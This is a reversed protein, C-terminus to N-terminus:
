YSGCRIQERISLGSNQYLENLLSIQKATHALYTLTERQTNINIQLLKVKPILKNQYSTAAMKAQLKALNMKEKLIRKQGESQRLEQYVNWIDKVLSKKYSTLGIRAERVRSLAKRQDHYSFHGDYLPMLFAGGFSWNMEDTDPSGDKIYELSGFILAKPSLPDQKEVLSKATEALHVASNLKKIQLNNHRIHGLYKEIPEPPFHHPLQICTKGIQNTSLSQLGTLIALGKLLEDLSDREKQLELEAELHAIKAEMVKPETVEGNRYKQTILNYSQSTATLINQRISIKQRAFYAGYFLGIITTIVKESTLSKELEIQQLRKKEFNIRTSFLGSAYVFQRFGVGVAFTNEDIQINNTTKNSGTYDSMTETQVSKLERNIRESLANPDRQYLHGMVLHINPKLAARAKEVEAFHQNEKEQLLLLNPANKIGLDILEPLHFVKERGILPGCSLITLIFIFLIKM